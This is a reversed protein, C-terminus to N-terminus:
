SLVLSGLSREWIWDLRWSVVRRRRKGAVKKALVAVVDDRWLPLWAASSAGEVSGADGFASGGIWTLLWAASLASGSAALWGALWGASGADSAGAIGDTSFSGDIRALLWAAQGGPWCGAAM